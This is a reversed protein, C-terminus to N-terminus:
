RRKMSRVRVWPALLQLWSACWALTFAVLLASGALTMVWVLIAMSIHDAMLCLWLAIMLGLTGLLRLVRTMAPSPVLGWVQLAHVQMSLALWGMGAVCALLAALLLWAASASDPM